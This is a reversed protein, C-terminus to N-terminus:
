VRIRGWKCLTVVGRDALLAAGTPNCNSTCRFLTADNARAVLATLVIRRAPFSEAAIVIHLYPRM